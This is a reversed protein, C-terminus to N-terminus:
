LSAYMRTLREAMIPWHYNKLFLERKARAFDKLVPRNKMCDEFIKKMAKDDEFPCAYGTQNEMVWKSVQSESAVLVPRGVALADFVKNPFVLSRYNSNGSDVRVNYILDCLSLTRFYDEQTEIWRYKVKPHKAFVNRAYEDQLWGSCIVEIRGTEFGDLVRVLTKLAMSQSHIGGTAAVRLPAHPEPFIGQVCPFPDEPSNYVAVAKRAFRGLTKKLDESTEIIRDSVSNAVLRLFRYIAAVFCNGAKRKIISDYVDLVVRKFFLHKFPLLMLVPYEDVCHVVEFRDTRLSQILHFYWRVWGRLSLRGFDGPYSLLKLRIGPLLDHKRANGALFDWGVFTVQHGAKALANCEKTSRIYAPDHRFIYAIKM